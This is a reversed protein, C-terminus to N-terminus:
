RSTSLGQGFVLGVPQGESRTRPDLAVRITVGARLGLSGLGSWIPVDPDQSRADSPARLSRESEVCDIVLDPDALASRFVLRTGTVRETLSRGAQCRMGQPYIGIPAARTRV